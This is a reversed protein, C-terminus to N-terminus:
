DIIANANATTFTENLITRYHALYRQRWEPIALLKNLLPYNVKNANYFPSWSTVAKTEFASNGDYEYPFTLTTEPEYYVYYDMKGKMIYSDDDAFVNEAALFWLIKDIDLKSAVAAKNSTTATSLIQCADILKQWPDEVDTSKLTYYKQYAATDAGLYKMGATGD